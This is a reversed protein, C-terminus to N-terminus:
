NYWKFDGPYLTANQIYTIVSFIICLLIFIENLDINWTQLVVYDTSLLFNHFIQFNM